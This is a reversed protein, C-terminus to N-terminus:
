AAAEARAARLSGSGLVALAVPPNVDVQSTALMQSVNTVLYMCASFAVLSGMPPM